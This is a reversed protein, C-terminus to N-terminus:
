AIYDTGNIYAMGPKASVFACVKNNLSIDPYAPVFTTCDFRRGSYENAILAEFAYAVPDIYNIWRSWGHMTTTPLVFGACLILGMLIVNVPTMSSTLTDFCSGITRFIHSLVLTAM